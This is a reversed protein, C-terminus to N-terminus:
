HMSCAERVLLSARSRAQVARVQALEDSGQRAADRLAQVARLASAQIRSPSAHCPRDRVELWTEM